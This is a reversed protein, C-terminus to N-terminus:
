GNQIGPNLHINTDHQYDFTRTLEVVLRRYPALMAAKQRITLKFYRANVGPFSWGISGRYEYNEAITSSNKSLSDIDANFDPVLSKKYAMLSEAPLPTFGADRFSSYSLSTIEIKSDAFSHFPILHMKNIQKNAGLDVLLDIELFDSLSSNLSSALRREEDASISQKVEERSFGEEAFSNPDGLSSADFPSIVVHQPLPFVYECEWFTIASGDIAAKRMPALKGEDAPKRIVVLNSPEIYAPTDDGIDLISGGPSGSGISRLAAPLDIHQYFDVGQSASGDLYSGADTLEIDFRGGEPVVQDPYGYYRGEYFFNVPEENILSREETSLRPKNTRIIQVAGSNLDVPEAAAQPLTLSGQATDVFCPAGEIAFDYDIRDGNVFDDGFLLITPDKRFSSAIALDQSVKQVRGIAALALDRRILERNFEAVHLENFNKLTTRISDADSHIRRLMLGFETSSPFHNPNIPMGRFNPEGFNYLYEKLASLFEGLGEVDSKFEGANFRRFFESINDEIKKRSIVRPTTRIPDM